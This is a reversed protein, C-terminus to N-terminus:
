RRRPTRRSRARVPRPRARRGRRAVRAVHQANASPPSDFDTPDAAPSAPISRPRRVRRARRARRELPELEDAVGVQGDRRRHLQRRGLQELAARRDARLDRCADGRVIAASCTARRRRHRRTAHQRAVAAPVRHQLHRREFGSSSRTTRRSVCSPTSVCGPYKKSKGRSDNRTTLRSGGALRTRRRCRACAAASRNCPRVRDHAVRRGAAAARAQEDRQERTRRRALQPMPSMPSRAGSVAQSAPAPRRTRCSSGSLSIAGPWCDGYEAILAIAISGIKM